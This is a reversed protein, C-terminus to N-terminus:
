GCWARIINDGDWEHMQKFPIETYRTACMGDDNCPCAKCYCAFRYFFRGGEEEIYMLPYTEGKKRNRIMKRIEERCKGCYAEFERGCRECKGM